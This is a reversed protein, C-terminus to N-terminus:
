LVSTEPQLREAGEGGPRAVGALLSTLRLGVVSDHGPGHHRGAGPRTFSPLSGVLSSQLGCATAKIPLDLGKVLQNTSTLWM